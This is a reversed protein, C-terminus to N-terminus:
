KFLFGKGKQSVFLFFPPLRHKALWRADIELSQLLRKPRFTTSAWAAFSAGFPLLTPPITRSGFVFRGLFSGLGVALLEKPRGGDM